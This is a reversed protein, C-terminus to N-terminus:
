YLSHSSAVVSPSGRGVNLPGGSRQDLTQLPCCCLDEYVGLNLNCHTGFVTGLGVVFENITRFPVSEFEATRLGCGEAVLGPIGVVRGLPNTDTCKKPNV